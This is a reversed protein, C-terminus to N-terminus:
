AAITESLDNNISLSATLRWGKPADGLDMDIGNSGDGKGNGKFSLDVDPFKFSGTLTAADDKLKCSAGADTTTTITCDGQPAATLVSTHLLSSHTTGLSLFLSRPM